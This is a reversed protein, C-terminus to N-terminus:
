WKASRLFTMMEFHDASLRSRLPSFVRGGLSFLREVAASSPLATNWSIFLKRIRPYLELSSLEQSKDSLYKSLEEDVDPALTSVQRRATLLAFFDKEPDSVDSASVEAEVNENEHDTQSNVLAQIKIKLKETLVLKQHDSEVWDFKFKPKVVAALQADDNALMPGFRAQSM